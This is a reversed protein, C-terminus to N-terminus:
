MGRTAGFQANRSKGCPPVNRHFHLMFRHRLSQLIGIVVAANRIKGAADALVGDRVDERVSAQMIPVKEVGLRSEDLGFATASPEFIEVRCLDIEIVGFRVTPLVIEKSRMIDCAVHFQHAPILRIQGSQLLHELGGGFGTAALLGVDGAEDSLVRVAVLGTVVHGVQEVM